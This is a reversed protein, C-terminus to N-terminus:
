TFTPLTRTRQYSTMSSHSSRNLTSKSRISRPKKAFNKWTTPDTGKFSVVLSGTTEDVAVFAGVDLTPSYLVRRASLAWSGESFLDVQLNHDSLQNTLNTQDVSTISYALDSFFALESLLDANPLSAM